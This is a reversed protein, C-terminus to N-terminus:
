EQSSDLPHYYSLRRPQWNEKTKGTKIILDTDPHDVIYHIFVRIIAFEQKDAIIEFEPEERAWRKLTVIKGDDLQREKSGILFGRDGLITIVQNRSPNIPIYYPRLTLM